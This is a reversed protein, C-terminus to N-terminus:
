LTLGLDHLQSTQYHCRLKYKGYFRSLARAISAAVPMLANESYTDRPLHGLNAWIPTLGLEANM